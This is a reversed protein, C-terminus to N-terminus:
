PKSEPNKALSPTLPITVSAATRSLFGDFHHLNQQNDQTEKEWKKCDENLIPWAELDQPCKEKLETAV